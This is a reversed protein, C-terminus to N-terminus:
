LLFYIQSIAGKKQDQQNDSGNDRQEFPNKANLFTIGHRARFLLDQFGPLIPPVAAFVFPNL